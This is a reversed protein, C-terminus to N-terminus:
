VLEKARFRGWVMLGDRSSAELCCRLYDAFFKDVVGRHNCTFLKNHMLWSRYKWWRTHRTIYGTEVAEFCPSMVARFSEETFHQYHRKINRLPLNTSPVTALLTGGPKLWSHMAAIFDPLEDPPIHEIVAISVGADFREASPEQVIDCNLFRNGTGNNFLRAFEIAQSAIDVGVARKGPFRRIFQKLFYGDGCGFDCLSTFETKELERMMKILYAVYRYGAPNVRHQSFGNERVPDFRNIHHYPFHYM